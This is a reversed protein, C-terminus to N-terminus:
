GWDKWSSVPTTSRCLRLALQPLLYIIPERNWQATVKWFSDRCKHLVKYYNEFEIGLDEKPKSYDYFNTEQFIFLYLKDKNALAVQPQWIAVSVPHETEAFSDTNLFTYHAIWLSPQQKGGKGLLAATEKHASTVLDTQGSSKIFDKWPVWGERENSARFYM